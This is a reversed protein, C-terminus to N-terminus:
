KQCLLLLHQIKVYDEKKVHNLRLIQNYTQKHRPIVKYKPGDYDKYIYIKKKYCIKCRANRTGKDKNVSWFYNIPYEVNCAKCVRVTEDIKKLPPTTKSKFENYNKRKEKALVSLCYKCRLNRYGDRGNLNYDLCDKEKNCIICVKNGM